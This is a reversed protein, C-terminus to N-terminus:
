TFGIRGAGPNKVINVIGGGGSDLRDLLQRAAPSIAELLSLKKM